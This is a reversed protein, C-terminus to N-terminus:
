YNELKSQQCEQGSGGSIRGDGAREPSVCRSSFTQADEPKAQYDHPGVNTPLLQTVEARDDVAKTFQTIPLFRQLLRCSRMQPQPLRRQPSQVPHLRLQPAVALGIFRLLCSSCPHAVKRSLKLLKINQNLHRM